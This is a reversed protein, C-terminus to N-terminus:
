RDGLALAYEEGFEKCKAYLPSIVPPSRRLAANFSTGENFVVPMSTTVLRGASDEM